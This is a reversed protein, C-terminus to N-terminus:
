MDTITDIHNWNLHYEISDQKSWFEFTKDWEGELLEDLELMEDYEWLVDEVYSPKDLWIRHLVNSYANIIRQQKMEVTQTEPIGAKAPQTCSVMLLCVLLSIFAILFIGLYSFFLDTLYNNEKKM